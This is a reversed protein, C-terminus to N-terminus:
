AQAVKQGNLIAPVTNDTATVVPSRKMGEQHIAQIEEPSIGGDREIKTSLQQAFWPGDPTYLVVASGDPTHAVGGRIVHQMNVPELVIMTKGQETKLYIM